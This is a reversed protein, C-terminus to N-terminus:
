FTFGVYLRMALKALDWKSVQVGQVGEKAWLMVRCLGSGRALHTLGLGAIRCQRTRDRRVDVGIAHAYFGGANWSSLSSPSHATTYHPKQYRDHPYHRAWVMSM